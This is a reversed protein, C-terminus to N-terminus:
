ATAATDALGPSSTSERGTQIRNHRRLARASKTSHGTEDGHAIM